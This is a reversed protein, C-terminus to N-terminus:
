YCLARVIYGVVVLVLSEATVNSTPREKSSSLDGSKTV